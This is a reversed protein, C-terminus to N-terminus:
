ESQNVGKKLSLLEDGIEIKYYTDEIKPIELGNISVKAYYKTGQYKKEQSEFYKGDYEIHCFFREQEKANIICNTSIFEGNEDYVFTGFKRNSGKEYVRIKMHKNVNIKMKSKNNSIVYLDVFLGYWLPYDVGLEIFKKVNQFIDTEDDIVEYLCLRRGGPYVWTHIVYGNFSM